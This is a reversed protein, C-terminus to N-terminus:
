VYHCRTLPPPPVNKLFSSLVSTQAGFKIYFSIGYLFLECLVIQRQPHLTPLPERFLQLLHFRIFCGFVFKFTETCSMTNQTRIQFSM